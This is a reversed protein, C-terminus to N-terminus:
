IYLEVVLLIFGIIVTVIRYLHIGELKDLIDTGGKTANCHMIVEPKHDKEEGM